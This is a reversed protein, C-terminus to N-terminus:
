QQSARMEGEESRGNKKRGGGRKEQSTKELRLVAHRHVPAAAVLQGLKARPEAVVVEVGVVDAPKDLDRPKLANPADKGRKGGGEGGAVTKLPLCLGAGLCVLAGAAELCWSM